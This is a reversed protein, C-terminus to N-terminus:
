DRTYVLQLDPEWDGGNRSMEGSCTISRRDDSIAFTMRQSLAPDTRSWTWVNGALTWTYERSVNRVDFYLMRGAGPRGDDTGFIAVGDPVEPAEIHSRALLFAGAEIWEFTTRGHLARGPLM